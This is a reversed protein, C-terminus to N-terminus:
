EDAEPPQAGLGGCRPDVVLPFGRQLIRAIGRILIDVANNILFIELEARKNTISSFNVIAMNLNTLILKKPTKSKDTLHVIQSHDGVRIILLWLLSLKLVQHLFLLM